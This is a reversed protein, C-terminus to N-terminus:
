CPITIRRWSSLLTVSYGVQLKNYAKLIKLQPLSAILILTIHQSEALLTHQHSDKTVMCCCEFGSSAQLGTLIVNICAIGTDFFHDIEFHYPEPCFKDQALIDFLLM